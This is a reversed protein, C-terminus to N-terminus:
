LLIVIWLIKKNLDYLEKAIEKITGLMYKDQKIVM